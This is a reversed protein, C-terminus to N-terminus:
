AAVRDWRDDGDRQDSLASFAEDLAYRDWVTRGYIRVARPMLGDRIMRDFTRPSVGVYVAAAVRSL